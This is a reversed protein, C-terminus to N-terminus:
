KLHARLMWATKEHKELLDTVFDSTGADKHATQFEDITGRIFEIISEHDQLLVRILNLSDTGATDQETLHTLQLFNKLSAPAYHGLQRIREAVDDARDAAQKYLEEFYLHVSHFDPGELNWHARLTKTYLVFEDALLKALQHAVVERNEASIGITTKM